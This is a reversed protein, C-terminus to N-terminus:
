PLSTGGHLRQGLTDCGCGDGMVGRQGIPEACLQRRFAIGIRLKGAQPREHVAVGPHGRQQIAHEAARGEEGAEDDGIGGPERSAQLDHRLLIEALDTRREGL